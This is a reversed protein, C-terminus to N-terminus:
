LLKGIVEKFMSFEVASGLTYSVLFAEMYMLKSFMEREERKKMKKDKM